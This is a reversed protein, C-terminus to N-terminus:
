GTSHAADASPALTNSSQRMNAHATRTRAPWPIDPGLGWEEPRFLTTVDSRTEIGAAKGRDVM